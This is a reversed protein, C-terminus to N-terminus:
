VSIFEDMPFTLFNIFSIYLDTKNLFLCNGVRVSWKTLATDHSRFSHTLWMFTHTHTLNGTFLAAWGMARQDLAHYHLNASHSSFLLHSFRASSLTLHLSLLRCSLPISFSIPWLLHSILGQESKVPESLLPLSLPIIQKWRYYRENGSDTQQIPMKLLPLYIHFPFTFGAKNHLAWWKENLSSFYYPFQTDAKFDLYILIWASRFSEFISKRIQHFPLKKMRELVELVKSNIHLQSYGNTSLIKRYSTFM